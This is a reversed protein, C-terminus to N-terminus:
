RPATAAVRKAEIKLVGDAWTRGNDSSRDQQFRFSTPTIAHFRSRILV